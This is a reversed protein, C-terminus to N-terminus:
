DANPLKVSHSIRVQTRIRVRHVYAYMNRMSVSKKGGATETLSGKPLGDWRRGIPQLPPFEQQNQNFNVYSYFRPPLIRLEAM